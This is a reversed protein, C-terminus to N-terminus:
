VKVPSTVVITLSLGPRRGFVCAPVISGLCKTRTSLDGNYFALPTVIWQRDELKGKPRNKRMCLHVCMRAVALYVMPNLKYFFCM